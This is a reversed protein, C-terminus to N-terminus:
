RRHTGPVGHSGEDDLEVPCWRITRSMHRALPRAVPMPAHPPKEETDKSKDVLASWSFSASRSGRRDERPQQLGCTKAKHKPVQPAKSPPQPRGQKSFNVLLGLAVKFDSLDMGQNGHTVVISFIARADAALVHKTSECFKAFRDEDMSQEQGCFVNFTEEIIDKPQMSAVATVSADRPSSGVDETFVM